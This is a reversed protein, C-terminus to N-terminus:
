PRPGTQPPNTNGGPVPAKHPLPQRTPTHTAPTSAPLTAPASPPSVQTAPSTVGVAGPRISRQARHDAPTPPVLSAAVCGSVGPAPGKNICRQMQSPRIRPQASMTSSPHVDSVRLRAVGGSTESSPSVLLWAGIALTLAVIVGGVWNAVDKDDM